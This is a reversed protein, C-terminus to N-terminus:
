NRHRRVRLRRRSRRASELRRRAIAVRANVLPRLTAIRDDWSQNVAMADAVRKLSNYAAPDSLIYAELFVELPHPAQTM